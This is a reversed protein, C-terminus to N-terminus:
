STILRLVAFASPSVTVGVSSASASSIISHLPAPAGRAAVGDQLNAAQSSRALALSCPAPGRFAKSVSLYKTTWGSVSPTAETSGLAVVDGVREPRLMLNGRNRMRSM